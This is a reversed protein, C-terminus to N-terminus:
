PLRALRSGLASDVDIDGGHLRVLERVLALGIGSGEIQRGDTRGSRYFREFVRALEDAAIGIGTDRVTLRLLGGGARGAGARHQGAPTFKYANSLLNLM